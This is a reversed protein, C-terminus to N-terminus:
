YKVVFELLQLMDKPMEYKKWWTPRGDFLPTELNVFSLDSNHFIEQVQSFTNKIELPYYQYGVYRGFMVDGAVALRLVSADYETLFRRIYQRLHKM